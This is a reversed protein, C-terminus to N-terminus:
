KNVRSHCSWRMNLIIWTLLWCVIFGSGFGGVAQKQLYPKIPVCIHEEEVYKETTAKMSYAQTLYNYCVMYNMFNLINVIQDKGSINQWDRISWLFLKAIYPLSICSLLLIFYSLIDSLIPPPWEFISSIIGHSTACQYLKRYNSPLEGWTRFFLLDSFKEPIIFLFVDVFSFHLFFYM